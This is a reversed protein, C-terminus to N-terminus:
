GRRAAEQLAQVVEALGLPNAFLSIGAVGVAGARLVDAFNEPAMGGLAIVPIAVGRCIGRLGSTGLVPHDATKSRPAYVPAVLLYDPHAESAQLAEELSHVSIGKWLGGDSLLRADSLRSFPLHCGDAATEQVLPDM